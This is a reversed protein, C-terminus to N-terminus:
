DVYSFAKVPKYSLRHHVTMGYEQLAKIHIATGYGKHTGFKHKPFSTDLMELYRDRAVKAIISAAAVQPLLSDGKVLAASQHSQFLYNYSGDLLILDYELDLADVARIGSQTIAASLGIEDVEKPHVWGIGISSAYQRIKRDLERRKKPSLKKSDNVGDIELGFPLIVAAAVVPGAWAGRGVEDIGVFVTNKDGFSLVAEWTPGNTKPIKSV